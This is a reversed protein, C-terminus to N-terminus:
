NCAQISTQHGPFAKLINSAGISKIQKSELVAVKGQNLDHEKSSSLACTLDHM